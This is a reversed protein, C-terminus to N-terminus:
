LATLTATAASSDCNTATQSDWPIDEAVFNCDISSVASYTKTFRHDFSGFGSLLVEVVVDAGSRGVYIDAQIDGCINAFALRWNCSPDGADPDTTNLECIYDGNLDDCDGCGDDTIGTITIQIQQPGNGDDCAACEGCCCRAGKAGPSFGIGAM